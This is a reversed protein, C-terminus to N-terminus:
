ARLLPRLVRVDGVDEINWITDCLRRSRRAGIVPAMLHYCKEDVEARAM